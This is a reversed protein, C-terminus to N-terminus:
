AMHFKIDDIQVTCDNNNAVETFRLSKSGSSACAPPVAVSFAAWKSDLAHSTWYAVGCYSVELVVKCKYLKHKSPRARALFQVTFAKTAAGIAQEIYSSRGHISQISIYNNGSPAKGGGWRLDQSGVVIVRGLSDQKPKSCDRGCSCRWGTPCHLYTIGLRQQSVKDKEFNGNLLTLQDSM